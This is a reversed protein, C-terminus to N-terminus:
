VYCKLYSLEAEAEPRKVQPMLISAAGVDFNWKPIEAEAEFQEVQPM